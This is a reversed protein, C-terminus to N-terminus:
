FTENEVPLLSGKGKYNRPESDSLGTIFRGHLQKVIDIAQDCALYAHYLERTKNNFFTPKFTGKASEKHHTLMTLTHEYSENSEVIHIAKKMFATYIDVHLKNGIRKSVYRGTSRMLILTLDLIPKMDSM